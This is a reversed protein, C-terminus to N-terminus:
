LVEVTSQVLQIVRQDWLPRLHYEQAIALEVPDRELLRYGLRAPPIGAARGLAVRRRPFVRRKVDCLQSRTELRPPQDFELLHCQGPLRITRHQQQTTPRLPM